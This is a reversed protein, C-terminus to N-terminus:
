IPVEEWPDYEASAHVKEGGFVAAKLIGVGCDSFFNCETYHSISVFHQLCARSSKVEQSVIM